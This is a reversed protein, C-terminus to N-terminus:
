QLVLGTDMADQSTAGFHVYRAADADEAAVLSTLGSVLPIAPNGAREAAEALKGVDFLEAGCKRGISQAAQAPIVGLRAEARALAAEFDLMGQLRAADGLCEDAYAAGFLKGLLRSSPVPRSHSM